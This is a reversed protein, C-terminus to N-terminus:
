RGRGTRHVPEANTPVVSEVSIEDDAACFMVGGSRALNEAIVEADGRSQAEVSIEASCRMVQSLRVAFMQNKMTPKQKSSKKSHFM